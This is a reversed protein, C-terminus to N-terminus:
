QNRLLKYPHEHAKRTSLISASFATALCLIIVLFYTIPDLPSIGYLRGATLRSLVMSGPIGIGLGILTLIMGELIITLSINARQAGLAMRIGFESLRQVVSYSIVGYLGIAALILSFPGFIGLIFAASREQIFYKDLQESMFRANGIGVNSNVAECAQRIPGILSQPDIFASVHLQMDTRVGKQAYTYYVYPVSEENLNNYKVTKVMGIVEHFEGPVDGEGANRNRVMLRKGLPPEGPWYLQALTENVIVVRPANEDDRASFDRGHLIPIGVTQFYGPSIVNFGIQMWNDDNDTALDRRVQDPYYGQELPATGAWGASRIGPLEQIRELSQQYFETGPSRGSALFDAILILSERDYGLDMAKYYLTTRAFLGAAILLIVSLTIQATVLIRRWRSRIRDFSFTEQIKTIGHIDLRSAALAPALAFLINAFIGIALTIILTRSDLTLDLVNPIGFTSIGLTLSPDIIGQMVPLIKLMLNCIVLSCAMAALSLTFGETLLQRIVRSRSAGLAFRIAIERRRASGRALILSAVNTCAVLLICIGAVALIAFSFKGQGPDRVRNLLVLNPHWDRNTEPYAERLEDALIKMRLNAQKSSVGDKLRGIVSMGRLDRSDLTRVQDESIRLQDGPIHQVTLFTPIPVWIDQYSGAFTLGRFNEPAVGVITLPVKNLQISKGIAAPDGQFVRQWYRHSIVAVQNDGSVLGEDPLFGRGAAMHLGLVQFFNAAVGRGTLLTYNEDRALLGIGLFATIDSFIQDDLKVDECDTLSWDQSDTMLRDPEYVPLPRFVVTDIFSFIATNVGIGLALLLIAVITFGPSRKLQRVSYCLDRWIEELLFFGATERCEEKIKDIGGFSILANNSAEDPKMGNKKNEEEQMTLHFDLEEQLREELRKRQFLAFFRSIFDHLLSKM